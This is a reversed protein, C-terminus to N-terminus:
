NHIVVSGGSLLTTPPASDLEGIQNDYVVTDASDWIKIRFKDADGGGPQQGDVATLMFRYGDVGNVTGSGKYQAKAGAVVFWCYSTAKFKMGAAQFFFETNGSPETAGKAYKSVFGCTAKGTLAPDAPYAGAPSTIWGGGTVFGASPDYVVAPVQATKTACDGDDDLVTV